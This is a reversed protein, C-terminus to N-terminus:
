FKTTGIKCIQFHFRHKSFWVNKLWDQLSCIQKWECQHYVRTTEGLSTFSRFAYEADRRECERATRKLNSGRKLSIDWSVWFRKHLCILVGRRSFKSVSVRNRTWFQSCFYRGGTKFSFISSSEVGKCFNLSNPNYLKSRGDSRVRNKRMNSWSFLNLNMKLLIWNGQTLHLSTTRLKFSNRSKFHLLIRCIKAWFWFKYHKKDSKLKSKTEYKIMLSVIKRLRSNVLSNRSAKM